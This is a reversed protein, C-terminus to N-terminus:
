NKVIYSNDRAQTAGSYIIMSCVASKGKLTVKNRANNADSLTLIYYSRSKNNDSFSKNM